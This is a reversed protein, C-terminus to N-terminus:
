PHVSGLHPSDHPFAQLVWSLDVTRSLQTKMVTNRLIFAIVRIFNRCLVFAIEPTKKNFPTFCMFRLEQLIQDWSVSSQHIFDREVNRHKSDLITLKKQNIVQKFHEMEETWDYCEM